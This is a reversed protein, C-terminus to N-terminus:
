QEKVNFIFLINNIKEIKGMLIKASMGGKKKRKKEKKELERSARKRGKRSLGYM